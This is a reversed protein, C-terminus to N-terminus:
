ALEGRVTEAVSKALRDVLAAEPGEVMVRCLPETGSYRVLIRGESGLSRRAADVARKVPAVEDLDAKRAVRVNLLTQPYKEVAHRSFPEGREALVGLVRLATLLGDGAPSADFFLMHGSQEGGLVAGSKLMEEAVFRDGVKTRRLKIGRDRLLRELGLNAMVTSVVIGGPLKKTKKLHTGCLALVDDGDRIEGTEDAFIARDADGDFAVGLDAKERRVVEAIAAPHLAGCDANINRGDPAAHTVITRAGLREFLPGAYPSAAGNACDVAITWGNLPRSLRALFKPYDGIPAETPSGTAARAAARGGGEDVLEEIAEEAADPIKFGQPSLFKIGNDDAPNHSASIVVGLDCGLTRTLYAVGPTTLVGARIVPVGAEAFGTSLAEELSPGSARTDRGILVQGRGPARGTPGKSLRRLRAPVRARFRQRDSTLLTGAARALRVVNERLLPGEGARGRIGDTGFLRAM